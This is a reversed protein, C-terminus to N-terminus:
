NDHKRLPPIEPKFKLKNKAYSCFKSPNPNECLSNEFNEDWQWATKDCNKFIKNYEPKVTSDSRCLQYLKKKEKLLKRISAPRKPKSVFSKPPIHQSILPQLQKCLTDYLLQVNNGSSNIINKWDVLLLEDQTKNYDARKFDPSLTIHSPVSSSTYCSISGSHDCTNSFPSCIEFSESNLSGQLTCLLLDLTSGSKHISQSVHQILHTTNCFEVFYDHCPNDINIPITWDIYPLNFDGVIYACHKVSICM